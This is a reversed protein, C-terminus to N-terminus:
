KRIISHVKRSVIVIVIFMVITIVAIISVSRKGSRSETILRSENNMAVTDRSSLLLSSALSDYNLRGMSSERSLVVRPSTIVVSLGATDSMVICATDVTVRWKSESWGVHRHIRAIGTSDSVHSSSVLRATESMKKSSGCASIICLLLFVVLRNM